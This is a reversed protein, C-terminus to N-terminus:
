INKFCAVPSFFFQSLRQYEAPDFPKKALSRYEELKVERIGPAAAAAPTSLLTNGEQEAEQEAKARAAEAKQETEQEAKARAAEAEEYEERQEGMVNGATQARFLAACLGPMDSEGLM